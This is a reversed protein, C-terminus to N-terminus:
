FLTKVLYLCIAADNSGFLHKSLVQSKQKHLVHLNFPDFLTDGSHCLLSFFQEPTPSM